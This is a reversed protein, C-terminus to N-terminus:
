TTELWPPSGRACGCLSHRLWPLRSPRGTQQEMKWRPIHQVEADSLTVTIGFHDSMVTQDVSWRIREMLVATAFTLDM